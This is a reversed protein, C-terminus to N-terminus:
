NTGDDKRITRYFQEISVKKFDKPPEFLADDVDLSVDALAMRYQLTRTEGSVSYFEQIVPMELTKDVYIIIEQAIAGEVKVRYRELGNEIGLSEFDAYTRKHLLRETLDNVFDDTAIGSAKEHVAYIRLPVSVLINMEGEIMTLQAESGPRFDIRIKTGDRSFAVKREIGAATTTVIARFREPGKTPFPVDSPPPEIQQEAPNTTDNWWGCGVNLLSVLAVIVALNALTSLRM